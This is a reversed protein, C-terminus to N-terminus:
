SFPLHFTVPQMHPPFQLFIISFSSFLHRMLLFSELPSSSSSSSVCVSSSVLVLTSLSSRILGSYFPSSPFYKLPFYLLPVIPSALFCPVYFLLSFPSLNFLICNEMRFPVAMKGKKWKLLHRKQTKKVIAHTVKVKKLKQTHRKWRKNSDCTDDKPLALTM